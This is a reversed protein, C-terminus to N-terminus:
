INRFLATAFSVIFSVNAIMLVVSRIKGPKGAPAPGSYIAFLAVGISITGLGICVADFGHYDFGSWRATGTLAELLGAGILVTPFVWRRVVRGLPNEFLDRTWISRSAPLLAGRALRRRLSVQASYAALLLVVGAGAICAIVHWYTDKM